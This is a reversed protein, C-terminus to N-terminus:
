LAYFGQVDTILDVSGAHNYLTVKGDKVPVVVLNSVTKGAPVNLNSTGPRATGYPYASIYTGSTGNAATVNMVVATVGAAPVGNRGAVTLSVTRGPGVKAKPAGTGTRTDLSRSPALPQFLSGLPGSTYYGAIDVIVDADGTHNVFRVYDGYAAPKVVALNSVTQGPLLNLTSGDSREGFATVYTPKTANTATVHVVIATVGTKPIGALGPVDLTPWYDENAKRKLGGLGTRTDLVRTPKMPEFRDGLSAPTFYGVVDAVIDVSGAHNYFTVKGDKVPVTVLNSVARGVPVNVNSANPRTTGGPYAAVYTSATANVVTVNMTVATVDYIPVSRRGAVQLTVTGKAGVKGKRVGTGYRTDMHREPDLPEFTASAASAGGILTVEGTRRVEPGVGDAPTATLTWTYRGNPLLHGASDPGTWRPRVAGRADKGTLLESVTGSALHRATLTWTGVPKSFAITTLPESVARSADVLPTKHDLLAALPQSEIGTPVIHVRDTADVYVLNAGHRDVSWRVHRQSAGTDPLDGVVRSIPKTADAGTLVLTGAAKDHTVVFGDGLLSEGSPVPQSTKATRDYVGAPGNAGCSWYLWRGSAQLEEAGCPAGTEVTEVTTGTKLDKATLTGNTAGAAWLWTGWLASAGPTREDVAQGRWYTIQKGPSGPLSRVVYDGNVDVIRGGKSVYEASSYQHFGTGQYAYVDHTDTSGTRKLYRGDGVARLQACTLDDDGACPPYATDRLRTPSDYTPTGSTSLKRKWPFMGAPDSNDVTTLEGQSLAIGQIRGPKHFRTVTTVVPKGTDDATIRQVGWDVREDGGAGTTGIAVATGGPGAGLGGTAKTLLGVTAGGAIPVGEVRSNSDRYVLWDGVVTLHYLPGTIGTDVPVEILPASPDTRSAVLATRVTGDSSYAVIHEPSIRAYVYSAPMPPTTAELLGTEKSVLAMRRTGDQATASFVLHRDDATTPSGLKVGDQIGRFTLDGVTGDARLSLLHREAVTTGDPKTVPRYALATSGFVRPPIHPPTYDTPLSYVRANGDPDRLEIQGERIFALTDTGTGLVHTWPTTPVPVTVTTGDSYRTWLIGNGREEYRFLGEPGVSDAQSLRSLEAKYPWSFRPPGFYPPPVVVEQAAPPVPEEAAATGALPTLGGGVSLAIATAAAFAGRVWAHRFM